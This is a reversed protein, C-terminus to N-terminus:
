SLEKYQFRLAEIWEMGKVDAVDLYSVEPPQSAMEMALLLSLYQDSQIHRSLDEASRWHEVYLIHRDGELQEYIGCEMLGIRGRATGQIFRLLELISNRKSAVPSLIIKAIIMILWIAHSTGDPM